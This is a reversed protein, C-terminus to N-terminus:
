EGIGDEEHARLVGDVFEERCRYPVLEICNPFHYNFWKWIADRDGETCLGILKDIQDQWDDPDDIDDPMQDYLHTALHWAASAYTNVEDESADVCCMRFFTPVGTHVRIKEEM